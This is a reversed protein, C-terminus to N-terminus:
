GQKCNKNLVYCSQREVWKGYVKGNPFDYRSNPLV